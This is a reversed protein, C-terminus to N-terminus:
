KLLMCNIKSLKIKSTDKNIIKEIEKKDKLLVKGRSSIKLINELNSFLLGITEQETNGSKDNPVMRLYPGKNLVFFNHAVHNRLRKSYELVNILDKKTHKTRNLTLLSEAIKYDFFGVLIIKGGLTSSDFINFLTNKKYIEFPVKQLKAKKKIFNEFKEKKNSEINLPFIENEKLITECTKHGNINNYVGTALMDEVLIVESLLFTKFLHNIKLLSLLAIPTREVLLDLRKEVIKSPITKDIIKEIDTRQPPTADLLIESLTKMFLNYM